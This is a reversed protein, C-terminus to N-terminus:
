VPQLHAVSSSNTKSGKNSSNSVCLSREGVFLTHNDGISTVPEIKGSVLDAVRYVELKSCSSDNYTVLLLESGCEVFNLTYLFKDMPCEAIMEPLPLRCQGEDANPCPPNIQYIYV